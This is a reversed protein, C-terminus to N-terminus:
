KSERITVDLQKWGKESFRLLKRRDVASGYYVDGLKMNQLSFLNNEFAIVHNNWFGERLPLPYQNIAIIREDTSSKSPDQDVNLIFTDNIKEYTTLVGGFV